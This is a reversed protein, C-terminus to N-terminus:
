VIHNSIGTKIDVTMGIEMDSIMGIALCGLMRVEGDSTLREVM